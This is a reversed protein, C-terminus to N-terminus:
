RGLTHERLLSEYTKGFRLPMYNNECDRNVSQLRGKVIDYIEGGEEVYWGETKKKKLQCLVDLLTEQRDTECVLEGAADYIRLSEEPYIHPIAADEPVETVTIDSGQGCILSIVFRGDIDYQVESFYRNMKYECQRCYLEAYELLVTFLPKRPEYGKEYESKVYADSGYRDILRRIVAARKEPGMGDIYQAYRRKREEAAVLKDSFKKWEEPPVDNIFDMLTKENKM